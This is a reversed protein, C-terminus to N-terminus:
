EDGKLLEDVTCGCVNAIKPLLAARPKTKGSEWFFVASQDVGVKEALGRQTLGAAKRASRFGM